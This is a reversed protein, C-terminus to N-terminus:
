IQNQALAGVCDQLSFSQNDTLAAPLDVNDPCRHPERRPQIQALRHDLMPECVQATQPTRSSTDLTGAAIFANETIM